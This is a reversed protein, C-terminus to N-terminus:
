GGGPMGMPGGQPVGGPGRLISADPPQGDAEPSGGGQPPMGAGAQGNMGGMQQAMGEPAVFEDVNKFDLDEWMSRILNKINEITVIQQIAPGLAKFLMGYMQFMQMKQQFKQEKVGSNSGIDIVVDCEIDMDEPRITIWEKNLKILQETDFFKKNIDVFAQYLDRVGTEAFIRAILKIRQQAANMIATVGTATRNLSQPDIGGVYRAIGTRNERMLQIDEKMKLVYPPMTAIPVPFIASSPDIDFKTVGVGGPRNSNIFTDFDIRFPNIVHRGSTSFFITDMIFREMATHLEQIDIALEAIGKGCVRHPLLIPSIVVFPPKEFINDEELIVKSGFITVKKPLPRGKKDFDEMYCEYIYVHNPKRQDSVFLGGGLDRFRENVVGEDWWENMVENVDEDTVKYKAKLYKIHVRKKHACFMSKVDRAKFDFVFEEPPINEAMPKSIKTVYKCRINHTAIEGPFVEVDPNNEITINKEGYSIVTEISDIQYNDNVMIANLESSTLARYEKDTYKKESLWYYKIVGMKNILADKFFKYLLDFGNLGQQIDYNVKEEVLRAKAEHEPGFPRVAMVNKGGYFMDMLYPMLTEITDSVDSMVVQSRGKMDKISRAWDKVPSANYAALLKKREDTLSQMDKSCSRLYALAKGGLDDPLNVSGGSSGGSNKTSEPYSNKSDYSM